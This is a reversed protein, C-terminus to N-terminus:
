GSNLGSHSLWQRLVAGLMAELAALSSQPMHFFSRVVDM